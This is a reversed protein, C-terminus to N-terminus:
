KVKPAIKQNEVIRKGVVKIGVISVYSMKKFIEWKKPSSVRRSIFPIILTKGQIPLVIENKTQHAESLWVRPICISCAPLHSPNKEQIGGSLFIIAVYKLKSAWLGVWNSGLGVRTWGWDSGLGGGARCM